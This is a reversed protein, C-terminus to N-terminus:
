DLVSGRHAILGRGADLEWGALEEAVRERLGGAPGLRAPDAVVGLAVQERDRGLCVTLDTLMPGALLFVERATYPGLGAVHAPIPGVNSAVGDAYGQVRSALRHTIASPLLQMADVVGPPGAASTTELAASARRLAERTATRVEDLRGYAPSGGPLVVIAAGAANTSVEQGGGAGNARVRTDFPLLLRLPREHAEGRSQRAMRLLNALVALLLANGSGGRAAAAEDWAQGDLRALAVVRRQSRAGVSRDRTRLATLAPRLRAFDSQPERWRVTAADRGLRAGGIVGRRFRAVVDGLEQMTGPAVSALAPLPGTPVGNPAFATELIGRGDGYAHHLWTLVTTGGESDTVATLRWGPDCSPDPQMSVEDDLLDAIDASGLPETEIRLPPLVSSPEWRARAGPVRARVVRRGFGQPNAALRAAYAALTESDIREDFRRVVGVCPLHRRRSAAVYM